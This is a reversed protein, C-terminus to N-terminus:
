GEWRIAAREILKRARNKRVIAIEESIMEEVEEEAVLQVPAAEHGEPLYRKM